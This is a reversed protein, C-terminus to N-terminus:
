TSPQRESSYLPLNRGFSVSVMPPGHNGNREYGAQFSRNASQNQSKTVEVHGPQKGSSGRHSSDGRGEHENKGNWRRRKGLVLLVGGSALEARHRELRRARGRDGRVEVTAHRQQM